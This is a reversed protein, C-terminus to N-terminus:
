NKFLENLSTSATVEAGHIEALVAKEADVLRINALVRSSSQEVVELVLYFAENVNVERYVTWAKTTSPLCGVGLHKRVWVLMAQYVLDNAFINHSAIPFEGQKETAVDAVLCSLLLGKDDCHIVDQIGQLSQGHFLTGNTYLDAAESSQSTALKPLVGPFRMHSPKKRGLLLTAGYHFVATDSGNLSSVKVDVKLADDSTEIINCDILYQKSEAIKDQDFVIGKFLKYNELGQYVYDQYTSEVAEAMWSIACVSPFVRNGGIVHDAFLSNDTATLSRTVRSVASKKEAVEESIDDGGMDNGVLIQPCRNSTAAMENLFLEEGAPLPIVYVGRDAFMRKLEPTVMGGDWPGWNFSVVQAKPHLSKFRFATKNLIENAISYDSQGPNGYFGAASSFLVLHRLNEQQVSSLMSVLGDIKTSYVAEFDDLSKQEIFNDALVGAGHILGTVEGFQPIIQQVAKQVGAADTVDVSAYLGQGGVDKIAAITASIERSALVPKIFLNIKVPTPKDGAAILTAMAAKKLATVDKIGSAWDPEKTEYASRGLLIFKSKYQKALRIVCHATVGKAGGSVLFVSNEDITDGATLTYSDTAEGVLSLRGQGDYGIEKLSTNRDSLEDVIISAVKATGLKNALDVTRCFVNPWEHALTKILGSLGGQVLDSSLDNDIGFSGGQRTVVMFTPRGVKTEKVNCHKALIFALMLGQKSEEPYEIGEITTAAQMYIVTTFPFEVTLMQKVEAEALSKLEVVKVAKVYAKKSNQKVWGPRLATVKCGKKILTNALMMSAGTGDDVILAHTGDSNLDVTDIEAVRKITVIASPAPEFTVTAPPQSISEGGGSVKSKMHGVIEGLTRLEALDEPNLEPLDTIEEQVAGLIEVRKISDIGLDAEMDMSLELMEAPYGTKDAVVDMMVTQIKDLDITPAAVATVTTEVTTASATPIATTVKSKMHGVIEGLTRLEALDEPNLEPLDTIEEQVAGLIEVRKISDIGLDAEMDMSLELMEAPYGTKDAVVDMMVTQIKDLDIPPAAVATVTTEVTAASAAPITTAVKSKMHGVIEGLTRLEALDEPNLEPLDTIEEQVAGLIEVRKISDIGLDAEMDMSLELMEAPYGTKDAVVDMMVTQIKDLDIAPAAVATATTEVTTASAAPIATAVKSKMHDVIEGLTRLEALDEPNLEPLDTIEEQVAGLIEVRKISDIGLDAEMDMSLELMEAPYGTKDAVVDMMVTQIKDLDIAPAAVATVTTKVTTTSAAPIATAVKSKMHGVIEGLTRLEALDEPNLEPLDTIEEQVAGLIEVRKISDIGLDAEMDMSLELMEAPYGTKDAVVDLMVTQIKNLDIAPAAVATVTARATSTAVAPPAPIPVQQSTQPSATVVPVVVEEIKAVMPTVAQPPAIPAAVVPAQVDPTQQVVAGLMNQMNGTQQNLYTEHVRLTETQFGHYMGLTKDLSEPLESANGQSALVNQFTKAYEQPGKMYEEHVALLQAQHNVFQGVSREISHALDVNSGTSAPATQSAVPTGDAQLYVIKEVIKEVIVEKEVIKEVIEPAQSQAGAQKIQWGDTLADTFIKKTKPSVYSAGSLKMALPSLKRAELPRQVASYPDLNELKLGLVAMQVAALRMQEDASKKPNGNVAITTVDTKDKLINDVLLSLVNKPGFEVFIRGGELYLNDIEEAFYVSELTHSKLCKKIDAASNSHAKGTGNAFVPIKPANFKASNIAKAFPKQAHGVLPTHFAASVPLPIVKYGKAKLETLAIEIQSTVGAVVVQNNSNYNAISIDKIHKIDDAVKASEGLVAIMTGADFDKDDPAAMAQGRRRALMMFDSDSLVDAAWLATLEGFSHGASFDATFGAQKFAKFLAVSFTGIAPQAHETLRLTADQAARDETTFVPIPYTISSLQACGATTFESDMQAITELISPFNCALDRGMNLYQSGQGPFLAVVKGRSDLGSARYFVGTPTSWEAVGAQAALQRLAQKIMAIADGANKAVFGCRVLDAEPTKLTCETVLANFVYPQKEIDVNFKDLWDTLRQVLSAEDGASILITQAVVNLRYPTTQGASYEELVFHFNTGGFGFSSVGARRKIGDERPMWPRTENNIYLPTNEIELATNPKDVNITAPLVKHHLALAVKIMGATGAASKTHGIQSKVSGLAIHQKQTNDEGFHKNLGSFEAADGAITGTGHAEILGCTHSDFGADAYARRLAKVQGEPRPAYISKFRGDSSTGIGKVVAYIRDGDREADELRKFAVMGVGEGIMMGRSNQDFPRIDDSDTFAPTKAFSLYMFPSNDCCVGGSIMVESRHELLDSIAMRMAALSGACAADVVCNMGGFDFRNAIRGTIVNGLMGPFSNEEWGIYAKKFKGIIVQRDDDDIGSAKLVKDLIPAQLRSTLATIQKQGGGVGLTIGVKDRDYTSGEGIGADNLVDRAVVLAMLQAIDTLELINPPLGFEMPDFDIDPLFGGRKCYTKDEAKKDASYYDDIAWRDEPVDKIANVSQVIADWFQGLNKTDAFVSAMGIIAIPCEQLRSNIQKDDVITSSTPSKRTM